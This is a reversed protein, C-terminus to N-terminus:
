RMSPFAESSINRGIGQRVPKPQGSQVSEGTGRRSGVGGGSSGHSSAGGGGGGGHSSPPRPPMGVPPLGASQDGPNSARGMLHHLPLGNPSLLPVIRRGSPSFLRFLTSTPERKMTRGREQKHRTGSTSPTPREGPLGRSSPRDDDSLPAQARPAAKCDELKKQYHQWNDKNDSDRELSEYSCFSDVLSVKKCDELKKQYHRWDDKNDSDRELSEYSCFSEVSSVKKAPPIGNPPFMLDSAARAIALLSVSRGVLAQIHQGCLSPESVPAENQAPHRLQLWSAALFSSTTENASPPSMHSEATVVAWASFCILIAETVSNVASCPFAVPPLLSFATALPAAAKLAVRGGVVSVHSDVMGIEMGDLANAIRSHTPLYVLSSERASDLIAMTRVSELIAMTCVLCLLPRSKPPEDLMDELQDLNALKVIAERVGLHLPSLQADRLCYVFATSWWEGAVARTLSTVHTSVDDIGQMFKHWATQACTFCLFEFFLAVGGVLVAFLMSSTADWAGFAKPVVELALVVILSWIATGSVLADLM